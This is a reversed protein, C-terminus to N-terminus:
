QPSCCIRRPRAPSKKPRWGRRWNSRRSGARTTPANSCWLNTVIMDVEESTAQAGSYQNALVDRDPQTCQRDSGIPTTFVKGASSLNCIAGACGAFQSFRMHYGSTPAHAFTGDTERESAAPGHSKREDQGPHQNVASKTWDPWVLFQFNALLQDTPEVLLSLRRCATVLILPM